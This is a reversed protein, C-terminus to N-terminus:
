SRAYELSVISMNGSKVFVKVNVKEHVSNLRSKEFKALNYGQKPDVWEYWTQYGQGHTLTVPTNSDYFVFKRKPKQRSYNLRHISAVYM